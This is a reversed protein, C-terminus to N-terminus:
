CWSSCFHHVNKVGGPGAEPSLITLILDSSNVVKVGRPASSNVVKVGSPGTEPGLSKEGRGLPQDHHVRHCPPPATGLTTYSLPTCVPSYRERPIYLPTCLRRGVLRGTYLETRCHPSSSTLLKAPEGTRSETNFGPKLM